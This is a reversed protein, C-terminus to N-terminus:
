TLEAEPHEAFFERIGDRDRELQGRLHELDSFAQEPRIYKLFTLRCVSGYWNGRERLLHTECSPPADAEVTPKVGFNSMGPFRKGDLETVTAYVGRPPFVKEPPM